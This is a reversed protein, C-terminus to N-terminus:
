MTLWVRTVFLFNSLNFDNYLGNLLLIVSRDNLMSDEDEHRVNGIASLIDEHAGAMVDRVAGETLLRNPGFLRKGLMKAIM